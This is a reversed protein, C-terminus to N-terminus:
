HGNCNNYGWHVNLKSFIHAGSLNAILESILPLPYQNCITYNNIRRYDQVPRLKGDQKKIFFFSSAYPSKSPHIYGKAHQEKIFEELAMDETQTMPYVKCDIIDPTDPKFEIAHDWTRKPPFHHSAEESFLHKFKAYQPPIEVKKKKGEGAQIALETAIGRVRSQGELQKVVKLKDEHTLAAIVVKSPSPIFSSIIVPFNIADMVAPQWKFGPEFAALWPYGLLLNKTGIDAILFRIDKVMGKTQVKLDIFHTISGSKNETNDINFIKKPKEFAQRGVKMREALRPHTFCNTAGSDVLAKQNDAEYYRTQINVPIRM